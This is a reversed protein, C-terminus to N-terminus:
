LSVCEKDQRTGERQRWRGTHFKSSVVVNHGEQETKKTVNDEFSVFGVRSFTRIDWRSVSLGVKRDVGWCYSVGM